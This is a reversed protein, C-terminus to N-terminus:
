EPKRRASKVKPEASKSSVAPNLKGEEHLRRIVAEATSFEERLEATLVKSAADGELGPSGVKEVMWLLKYLDSLLKLEARLHPQYKGRSSSRGKGRNRELTRILTCREEQDKVLFRVKDLVCTTPIQEQTECEPQILAAAAPPLDKGPVPPTVQESM